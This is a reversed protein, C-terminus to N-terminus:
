LLSCSETCLAVTSAWGKRVLVEGLFQWNVRDYAKEFDLKLLIAKSKRCKLEHIIKHLSLAGDLILRGKIFATQSPAIIRNAVPSLRNAVAKAIFKFIVNILATPRYQKISEAGVVKPILSLIGFNLRSVDTTGLAFGNLIQLVLDKLLIWNKKFFAVPFGDPGPRQTRSCKM